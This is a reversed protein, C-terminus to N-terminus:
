LYCNIKQHLIGDEPIHRWTSRTHVSTEISHIGEMKLTSFYALRGTQQWRSMSTGQEHIKIGQLHLRYTGGFRQNVFSRCSAVDWFIANKMTVATFAELEVYRRIIPFKLYGVIIPSNGLCPQCKVM